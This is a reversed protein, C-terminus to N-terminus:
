SEKKRKVENAKIIRIYDFLHRRLEEIQNKLKKSRSNTVKHFFLVTDFNFELDNNLIKNPYKPYEYVNMFTAATPVTVNDIKLEYKKDRLDKLLSVQEDEDWEIFASILNENNFGLHIGIHDNFLIDYILIDSYGNAFYGYPALYFKKLEFENLENKIKKLQNNQSVDIKKYFHIFSDLLSRYELNPPIPQRKKNDYCETILPLGFDIPINNQTSIYLVILLEFYDWYGLKKERKLNQIVGMKEELKYEGLPIECFVKWFIMIESLCIKENVIEFGKKIEDTWISGKIYSKFHSGVYYEFNNKELKSEKDITHGSNEINSEKNEIVKCMFNNFVDLKNDIINELNKENQELFHFIKKYKEFAFIYTRMNKSFNLGSPFYKEVYKNLFKVYENDKDKYIEKIVDPLIKKLEVEYKKTQFIFKEKQKGYKEKEKIESENTVVLVKVENNEAYENIIGMLVQIDITSRELDDFVLLVQKKGIIPKVKAYNLITSFNGIKKFIGGLTELIGSVKLFKKGFASLYETKVAGKIEEPTTLGFLSVSIVKIKKKKKDQKYLKKLENELLKKVYFSKGCGWDGTLMIARHANKMNLYDKIYETIQETGTETKTETKNEEVIFDNVM